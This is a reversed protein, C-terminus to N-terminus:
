AFRFVLLATIIVAAFVLFIVTPVVWEDKPNDSETQEATVETNETVPKNFLNQIIKKDENSIPGRYYLDQLYNKGTDTKFLETYYREPTWEVWTNDETSYMIRHESGCVPCKIKYSYETNYYGPIEPDYFGMGGVVIGSGLEGPIYTQKEYSNIDTSNFLFESNCNKCTFNYKTLQRKNGEKIIDM